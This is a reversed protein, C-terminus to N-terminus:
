DHLVMGKADDALAAYSCVVVHDATYLTVERSVKNGVGRFGDPCSLQLETPERRSWDYQIM